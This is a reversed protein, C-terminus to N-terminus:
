GLEHYWYFCDQTADVVKIWIKNWKYKSDILDSPNFANNWKKTKLIKAMATANAFFVTKGTSKEATFYCDLVMVNNPKYFLRLPILDNSVKMNRIVYKGAPLPCVLSLNTYKRVLTTAANMIANSRALRALDCTKYAVDIVKWTIRKGILEYISLRIKPNRVAQTINLDVNCVTKNIIDVRMAGYEPSM